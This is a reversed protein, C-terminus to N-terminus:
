PAQIYTDTPRELPDAISTLTAALTANARYGWTWWRVNTDRGGRVIVTGDPHVYEANGERAQALAAEARKTLTM